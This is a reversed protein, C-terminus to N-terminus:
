KSFVLKVALGSLTLGMVWKQFRAWQINKAFFDCLNAAAFIIIANVIFSITIQTFGFLLSQLIISGQTPEIFQPFLSMYFLAAKPNLINTIFGMRFLKGLSHNDLKSTKFPSSKETITKWALWVLYIAGIMKVADYVHPITLFIVTLGFTAALMYCIFGSAVGLLSIIGAIWGQCISRSILYIMNPGPTLVMVLAALSFLLFNSFSPM